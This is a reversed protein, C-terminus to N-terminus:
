RDSRYLTHARATDQKSSVEVAVNTNQPTSEYESAPIKTNPTTYPLVAPQQDLMHFPNTLGTALAHKRETNNYLPCSVV